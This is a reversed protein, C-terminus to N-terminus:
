SPTGTLVVEKYGEAVRQQVQRLLLEPPISQERGRVRPVICYACVQNCGEQIKVMARTRGNTGPAAAAEGTSCPVTPEERVQLALEALEEKQRNGVVLNVRSLKLLANPARQAYCSTAVVTSGPNRRRAARLAQRAKADAAHTVTCTNLVYIDPGDKPDVICYGAQIFQRALAESDAQNLKCGHTDLAVTGRRGRGQLEPSM